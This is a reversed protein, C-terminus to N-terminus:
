TEQELRAAAGAKMTDVGRDLGHRPWACVVAEIKPRSGTASRALLNAVFGVAGSAALRRDYPEARSRASEM